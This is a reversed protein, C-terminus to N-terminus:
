APAVQDMATSLAEHGAPHYGRNTGIVPHRFRLKEALPLEFFAHARRQLDSIIEPAVGHGTLTFFGIERCATDIEAAVRRRDAQDGEHAPVLDIVPIAIM